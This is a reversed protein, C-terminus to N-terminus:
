QPFLSPDANILFELYSICPGRSSKSLAPVLNTESAKSFSVFAFKWCLLSADYRWFFYRFSIAWLGGNTMPGQMTLLFIILLIAILCYWYVSFSIILSISGCIAWHSDGSSLIRCCIKKLFRSQTNFKPYIFRFVSEM